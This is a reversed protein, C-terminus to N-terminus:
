ALLNKLKFEANSVDFNLNNINKKRMEEAKNLKNRSDETLKSCGEILSKMEHFDGNCHLVLDCGAYLAKKARNKLSGSLAKMSLDDSIIIGQYGFQERILHKIAVKSHTIPALSDIRTYIIHATMAWPMNVLSRFPVFDTKELVNLPTNIVPLKKHSDFKARGHGPLHKLVPLVGGQLYGLCAAMGYQSVREPNKGFARDSIIKDATKVPIDIVPACNVTIGLQSLDHAILRANLEIAEATTEINKQEARRVLLQASLYEKWNPPRM